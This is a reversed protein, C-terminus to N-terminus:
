HEYVCVTLKLTVINECNEIIMGNLIYFISYYKTHLKKLFRFEKPSEIAGRLHTRRIVVIREVISRMYSLPRMINYYLIIVMTNCNGATNLVTVLRVPKYGVLL